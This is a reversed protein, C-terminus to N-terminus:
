TAKFMSVQKHWVSNYHEKKLINQTQTESFM